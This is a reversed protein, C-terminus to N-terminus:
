FKAYLKFLIDSKVSTLHVSENRELHDKDQETHSNASFFCVFRAGSDREVGRQHLLSIHRVTIDHTAGIAQTLFKLCVTHNCRKQRQCVTNFLFVFIM